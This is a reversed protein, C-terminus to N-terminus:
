AVARLVRAAYDAGLVLAHVGLLEVGQVADAVADAPLELASQHFDGDAFGEAIRALVHRGDALVVRVGGAALIAAKQADSLPGLFLYHRPDGVQSRTRTSGDGAVKGERTLEKAMIKWTWSQDAMVQFESQRADIIGVPADSWRDATRSGDTRTSVNNNSTSVRLVPRGGETVGDFRRWEHLPAQYLADLVRGNADVHVRYLPEADVSRGFRSFLLPARTGGDENSYIIRYEITRTGDAHRTVAPVLVLPADSHAISSRVGRDVDRLQVIPALRDALAQDGDVFRCSVAGIRAQVPAEETAARLEVSHTGAPLAGLNVEYNGDREGM